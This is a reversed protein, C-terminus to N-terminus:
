PAKDKTPDIAGGPCQGLYYHYHHAVIWGDHVSEYGYNVEGCQPCYYRQAHRKARKAEVEARLEEMRDTQHWPDVNEPTPTSFQNEWWDSM